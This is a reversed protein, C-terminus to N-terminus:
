SDPGESRRLWEAIGLGVCILIGIQAAASGGLPLHPIGPFAAEAAVLLLETGMPLRVFPPIGPMNFFKAM